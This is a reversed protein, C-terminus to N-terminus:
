KKKKAARRAAREAAAEDYQRRRADKSAELAARAAQQEPETLLMRETFPIKMFDPLVGGIRGSGPVVPLLAGLVGSFFPIYVSLLVLLVAISDFGLSYGAVSRYIWAIFALVILTFSNDVSSRDRRVVDWDRYAYRWALVPSLFFLAITVSLVAAVFLFGAPESFYSANPQTILSGLWYTGEIPEDGRAVFGSLILGFSAVFPAPMGSLHLLFARGKGPKSAEAGAGRAKAKVEVQRKQAKAKKRRADAQAARAKKTGGRSM